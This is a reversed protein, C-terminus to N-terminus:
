TCDSESGRGGQQQHAAAFGFFVVLFLPNGLGLLLKFRHLLAFKWGVLDQGQMVADLKGHLMIHVDLDLVHFFIGRFIHQPRLDQSHQRIQGHRVVEGRTEILGAGAALRNFRVAVSVIVAGTLVFGDVVQTHIQSEAQQIETQREEIGLLAMVPHQHFLTLDFAHALIQRQVNDAGIELHRSGLPRHVDGVIQEQLAPVVARRDVTQFFLFPDRREPSELLFVTQEGHFFTKGVVCAHIFIGTHFQTRQQTNIGAHVDDHIIRDQVLIRDHFQRLDFQQLLHRDQLARFQILDIDLTVDIDEFAPLGQHHHKRVDLDIHIQHVVVVREQIILGPPFQRDARSVICQLGRLVQGTVHGVAILRIYFLNTREGLRDRDHGLDPDGLGVDSGGPLFIFEVAPFVAVVALMQFFFLRFFRDAARNGFQFQIMQAHGHGFGLDLTQERQAGAM